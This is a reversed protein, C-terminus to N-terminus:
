GTDSKANAPEKTPPDQEAPQPENLMIGSLRYDVAHQLRQKEAVTFEITLSFDAGQLDLQSQEDDTLYIVLVSITRDSVAFQQQSTYFEIENFNRSVHVKALINSAARTVPDRNRTALNSRIFISSTGALDVGRSGFLEGDVSAQGALLGLLKTCTTEAGVTVSALEDESKLLIRNTAEDYTAVFGDILEPNLFALVEDVSHNGVPLSIARTETPFELQLVNNEARIVWHSLPITAAPVRVLLEYKDSPLTIPDALYFVCANTGFTQDAFKSDLHLSFSM